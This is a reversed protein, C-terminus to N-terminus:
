AAREKSKPKQKKFYEESRRALEDASVDEKHTAIWWINGSPDKVSGSRDGYFQDMPEMASKAGANLAHKYTADVDPVYLYLSNTAPPWEETAEGLMVRSDGIKIEAHMIKGDPRRHPPHTAVAGFAKTLFALEKEADRVVLYPTIAHYGDPIPNTAMTPEQGTQQPHRLRQAAFEGFTQNPPPLPLATEHLRFQLLRDRL